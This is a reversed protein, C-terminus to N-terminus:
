MKSATQDCNRIKKDSIIRERADQQNFKNQMNSVSVIPFELGKSKHITMFSVVNDDNSSVMAPSLNVGNNIMDDFKTTITNLSDDHMEDLKQIMLEINAVRQPGNVLSALFPLYNSDELFKM